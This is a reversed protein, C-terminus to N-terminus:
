YDRQLTFICLRKSKLIKNNWSPVLLLFQPGPSQNQRPRPSSVLHTHTHTHTHKFIYTYYTHTFIYTYHTHTFMYTYHTHTHTHPHICIYMPTKWTSAMYVGLPGLSISNLARKPPPSTYSVFRLAVPTQRTTWARYHTALTNSIHQQRTALTNSIHQQQTQNDLGQLTNSIHQQHTALTSSNYRTTWARSAQM